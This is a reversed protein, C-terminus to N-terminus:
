ISILFEVKNFKQYGNIAFNINKPEIDCVGGIILGPIQSIQSILSRGMQGAGIVGVRIYDKNEEKLLLDSYLSM